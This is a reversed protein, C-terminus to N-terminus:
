AYVAIDGSVSNASVSCGGDGMTYSGNRIYKCKEEGCTLSLDGSVTKVSAIYGTSNILYVNADGSVTNVGIERADRTKVDLDGSTTGAKVSSAIGEYTLDGSVTNFTAAGINTNIVTIDGSVTGASATGADSNATTVEGSMTNLKLTNVKVDHLKIDGSVTHVDLRDLDDPIEVTVLIDPCTLASFFTSRGVEKKCVVKITDGEQFWNFKYALQQNASGNNEYDFKYGNDDSKKVLVNGCDTEIVVKKVEDDCSYTNTVKGNEESSSDPKASTHETKGAFSDSMENFFSSSKGVVQEAVKTSGKVVKDAVKTSSKVVKDAVENLDKAWNRVMREAEVAENKKEVASNIESSLKEAGKTLGAAMSGLLGAFGKVADDIAKNPDFDGDFVSKTTTQESTTKNESLDKLENVLEDISGLEAAIEDDSKGSAAGMTFHEEYDSIIEDQIEKDFGKLANKLNEMYETRTM